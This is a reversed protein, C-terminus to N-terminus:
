GCCGGRTTPEYAAAIPLEAIPLEGVVCEDCIYKRDCEDMDACGGICCSLWDSEVVTKKYPVDISM